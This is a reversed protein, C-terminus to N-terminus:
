RLLFRGSFIAGAQLEITDGCFANDLAAQLNGGSRVAIISGPAPTDAMSSAVTIRPLEAPGDFNGRAWAASFSLTMFSIAIILLSAFSQMNLRRLRKPKVLNAPAFGATLKFPMTHFAPLCCCFLDPPIASVLACCM